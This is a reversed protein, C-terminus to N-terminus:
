RNTEQPLNTMQIQTLRESLKAAKKPEVFSLIEGAKRGKMGALIRVAITEDLTELVMGAQQPKMNSYVDILHQLQKDQESKLENILATLKRQAIEIENLSDTVTQELAKLEKEKIELAKERESLRKDKESPTTNINDNKPIENAYAITPQVGKLLLNSSESDKQFPNYIIIGGLICIIKTTCIITSFLTINTLKM